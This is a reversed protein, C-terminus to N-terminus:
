AVPISADTLLRQKQTLITDGDKPFVVDPPTPPYADALPFQWTAAPRENGGCRESDSGLELEEAIRFRSGPCCM